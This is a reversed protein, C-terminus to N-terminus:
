GYLNGSKMLELNARITVLKDEESVSVRGDSGIGLLFTRLMESFADFNDKMDQFDNMESTKCSIAGYGQELEIHCRKVGDQYISVGTSEQVFDCEQSFTLINRHYLFELIHIGYKPWSNPIKFEIVNSLHSNNCFLFDFSKTYRMGACCWLAGNTLREANRSVHGDTSGLPKDLFVPGSFEQFVTKEIDRRTDPDDHAIIVVDVDKLLDTITDNVINVDFKEAIENSYAGSLINTVKYNTNLASRSGKKLLYKDIPPWSSFGSIQSVLFGNLIAAFSYPHGNQPSYGIIGIRSVM